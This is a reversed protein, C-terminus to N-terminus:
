DKAPKWKFHKNEGWSFELEYHTQIALIVSSFVLLFGFVTIVSPPIVGVPPIFLSIGILSCGFLLLIIIIWDLYSNLKM